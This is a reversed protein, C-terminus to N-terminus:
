IVKNYANRIQIEYLFGFNAEHTQNLGAVTRSDMMVDIFHFMHGVEIMERGGRLVALGCFTVGM